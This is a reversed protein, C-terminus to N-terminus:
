KRYYFLSLGTKALSWALGDLRRFGLRRGFGLVRPKIGKMEGERSGNQRGEEIGEMRRGGGRVCVCLLSLGAREIGMERGGRSGAVGRREECRREVEERWGGAGRRATGTVATVSSSWGSGMNQQDGAGGSLEGAEGRRGRQREGGTMACSPRRGM